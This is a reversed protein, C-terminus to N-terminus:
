LKELMSKESSTLPVDNEFKQKTPTIVLMLFVLIAVLIYYFSNGSQLVFIVCMLSPFELLALRFIHSTSYKVAKQSLDADKPIQGILRAYLSKSSLNGIFSIIIALYLFAKDQQYSFFMSDMKVVAVYAAFVLVSGVLAFHIIQLSKMFDKPQRNIYKM